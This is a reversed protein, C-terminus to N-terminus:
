GVILMAKNESERSKRSVYSDLEPYQTERILAENITWSARAVPELDEAQLKGAVQGNQQNHQGSTQGQHLGNQQSTTAAPAGFKPQNSQPQQPPRNGPTQRYASPLPCQPTQPIAHSM